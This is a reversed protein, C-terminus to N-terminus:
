IVELDCFDRYRCNKCNERNRNEKPEFNYGKINEVAQKYKEFVLNVENDDLELVLNKQPEEPFIFTLQKVKKSTIKEFAYKYFAIQNYYNEKEKDPAIQSKTKAKGTKYDYLVFNGDIFDIRDIYGTFKINDSEFYFEKEAEYFWSVPTQSLQEYYKELAIKGRQIHIEKQEYSSVPLNKISNVFTDIFDNLPLHKKNKIAYKIAAEMAEHVASGYSLADPNSDKAKLNLIKEYLYKRPCELYMNLASASYARDNLLSDILNKFEKKYDYDKKIITKKIDQWFEEVTQSEIENLELMDQIKVIFDSPTKDIPYSLYLSHRARTMGVYMVKIRDSIKEEKLRNEDKYEEQPLPINAKYGKGKEWKKDTLTPMFVYDFERGKASYYTSLQVANLPVPAKDTKIEVEQAISIDLHEIFEELTSLTNIEEFDSAEDLLKKIGAINQTKNIDNNMYYEFIGTKSGIELLTNKLSERNKYEKLYEFTEIFKQIKDKEVFDEKVEKIYEIISKSCSKYKFILEFDKPNIQFPKNLLFKLLKDSYLDECCLAKLYYYLILSSKISFISQGEKLEAPINREKLMQYFIGLEAHSRALIAIQSLDKNNKNDLPCNPSNIIREIEDLIKSYEQLINQYRNLKVKINKNFLEKNKATLNKDINYKKFKPNIELRKDDQKVIQRATDLINQTSRMNENLCIVKTDPFRLLYNEITDLKAGQFAFIIQDDDGVVFVNKCSSSLYFVIENQSKNTDQYEDVLIYEYEKAVKDLFAPSSEFKDLVLSIMDNFDIYRHKKTKECYLEYFQWIERLQNIEKELELKNKEITATKFNGKQHKQEIELEIKQLKPLWDQNNKLNQEFQEKTLRNQKIEDIRDKIKKVCAYPDNKDNKLYKPKIEDICEKILRRSAAEPITKINEPLDFIDNNKEILDLCFSHYTFINVDNKSCGLEKNLRSQMEQAATQSFTLCLIKKPDINKNLMNKIRQIVCFTKGTGPGALVLYKGEINNICESQRQNPEIM